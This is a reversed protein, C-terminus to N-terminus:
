SPTNGESVMSPAVFIRLADPVLTFTMPTRGLWEGDAQVQVPGISGAGCTFERVSLTRVAPNWRHLRAWSMAFWASLAWRAPPLVATLSLHPHEISAGRILPSFFGGLDGVRVAMASVAQVTGPVSGAEPVYSLEFRSFNSRLFLAAARLYYASRGLRQKGAALMRYTLAGDPGAGALVAFYRSREGDPHTCTVRGLPILQTQRNLQQGAAHVPDLALQLHRALVNASGMPLIGLTATPHFAIGQLVEHVTGDGGCAFLIDASDAAERAQQGAAGPGHTATITVDVSQRRLADAVREITQIRNRTRGSVPNYLLVARRM